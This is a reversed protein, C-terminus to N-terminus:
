LSTKQTQHIYKNLHHYGIWLVIFGVVGFSSDILRWGIPIGRFTGAILALPIVLVCAILGFEIVWINKFPDRYPGIFLIALVFHAFALWDYGYLLFPHTQDAEHYATVVKLLWAHLLTPSRFVRLLIHLEWEIPIATLGSLFLCTIFVILLRRILQKAKEQKILLDTM